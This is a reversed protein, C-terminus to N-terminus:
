FKNPFHRTNHSYIWRQGGRLQGLDLGQEGFALLQMVAAAMAGRDPHEGLGLFDKAHFLRSLLSPLRLWGGVQPKYAREGGLDVHAPNRGVAVEVHVREASSWAM